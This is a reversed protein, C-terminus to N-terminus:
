YTETDSLKVRDKKFLYRLIATGFIGHLVSKSIKLAIKLSKSPNSINLDKMFGKLENYEEANLRVTLIKGSVEPIKIEENYRVFPKKALTM